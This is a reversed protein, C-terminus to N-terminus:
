GIARPAPLPTDAIPRIEGDADPETFRQATAAFAAEPTIPQVPAPGAGAQVPRPQGFEMEHQKPHRRTPEADDTLFFFDVPHRPKPLKLQSECSVNIKDASSNGSQAPTVGIKITLSGPLGHAKVAQLLEDFHQSLTANTQGSNLEVLFLSLSKM